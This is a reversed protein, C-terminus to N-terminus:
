IYIGSYAPNSKCMQYLEVGAIVEAELKEQQTPFTERLVEDVFPMNNIVESFLYTNYTFNQVQLATKSLANINDNHDSNGLLNATMTISIVPILIIPIIAMVLSNVALKSRLLNKRTKIIDIIKM